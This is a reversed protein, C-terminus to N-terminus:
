GIKMHKFCKVEMYKQTSLYGLTELADSTEPGRFTNKLSRVLM